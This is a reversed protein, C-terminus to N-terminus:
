FDVISPSCDHSRTMRHCYMRHHRCVSPPGIGQSANHKIAFWMNIVADCDVFEKEVPGPDAMPDDVTMALLRIDEGAITFCNRTIALTTFVNTWATAMSVAATSFSPSRPDLRQSRAANMRQSLVLNMTPLPPSQEIGPQFTVLFNNRLYGDSRHCQMFWSHFARRVLQCLHNRMAPRLTDLLLPASFFMPSDQSASHLDTIPGPVLMSTQWTHLISRLTHPQSSYKVIVAALAHGLLGPRGEVDIHFSFGAPPTPISGFVATFTSCSWQGPLAIWDSARDALAGLLSMAMPSRWQAPVNRWLDAKRQAEELHSLCKTGDCHPITCHGRTDGHSYWRWPCTLVHGTWLFFGDDVPGQPLNETNWLFRKSAMHM